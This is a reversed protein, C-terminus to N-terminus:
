LGLFDQPLAQFAVVRVLPVQPSLPCSLPGSLQGWLGTAQIGPAKTLLQTQLNWPGSVETLYLALFALASM